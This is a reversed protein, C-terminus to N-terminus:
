FTLRPALQATLRNVFGDYSTGECISGVVAREGLAKAVRLERVSPYAKGRIQTTTNTCLPPTTGRGCDCSPDQPVCTRPEPLAFTCAFQLDDNNTNWERGHVPDPGNDGLPANGPLGPRPKTSQIMHPDIGGYDFTDPSAGLINTWQPAGGVLSAPVGGILGFVVLDRGRTGFELKCLEDGPGSPLKAAFLPNVCTPAQEGYPGITRRGDAEIKEDHEEATSPVRSRSFGYTYRTVPYQPDIGYREKMRHFRVGLQDENPGYYGQNKLCEPDTKIKQCAADSANCTAAFGCSTCDPSAPDTACTSTARPATTTQGDGRPIPSGPFRNAAFAWGQGGIARPDPMSDDEDTLMLVLVLSDPRLFAARQALLTGDVGDFTAQNFQNLTVKAWPDPQVLFRYAAELQAELGCGTEGVGRVLAQADATFTDVSSGAAFTLFGKSASPLPDGNEGRTSLHARMNTNGTEPCVDGGMSGLSSSIVGLHVDGTAAVQKTLTPLSKALLQAKASMSASNDVVLLVDVKNASKIKPPGEEVDPDTGPGGEPSTGDPTSGDPTVNTGVTSGGCAIAFVLPLLPALFSLRRM